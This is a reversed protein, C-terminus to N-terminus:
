HYHIRVGHFKLNGGATNNFWVKVYYAFSQNRVERQGQYLTWDAIHRVSSDAGPTTVRFMEQTTGTDYNLRKLDCAMYCDAGSNNDTYFFFMGDIIAGQPLFVQAFFISYSDSTQFYSGDAAIYIDNHEQAPTFAAPGISIHDAYSTAQLLFLLFVVASVFIAKKM